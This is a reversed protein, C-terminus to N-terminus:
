ARVCNRGAHKAAYLREDARRIVEPLSDGEGVAVVGASLTLEDLGPYNVGEAIARRVRECFAAAGLLSAPLIAVFEEGGWRAVTDTKRALRVMVQAVQRLVQDGAVHGYEDNVRKFRDVDLLALCLSGGSRTLRAQEVEFAREAARRNAIGTLPDTVLQREREAHLEREATIDDWVVAYGNGGPVPVASIVRRLVRRRPRVLVIEQRLTEAGVPLPALVREVDLPDEVLRELHRRFCESSGHSRLEAPDIGFIAAFAANAVVVRREHDLLVVGVQINSLTADLLAFDRVVADHSRARDTIDHCFVLAAPREDMVSALPQVHLDYVRDRHRVEREFAAGALAGRLMTVLDIGGPASFVEAVKRGIVSQEDGLGAADLLRELDPGAASVIRLDADVKFVASHPLHRLISRSIQGQREIAGQLRRTETMDVIQAIFHRPEGDDGRVLSVHVEAHLTSGDKRLYRKAMRFRPIDDRLLAGILERHLQVDEPHTRSSVTEHALEGAEFGLMACLARNVQLFRFDLGVLAKGIPAHEFSERFQAEARRRSAEEVRQQRQVVHNHITVDIAVRLDGAAGPTIVFADPHRHRALTLAAAQERERDAGALLIVPADCRQRMLDTAWAGEAGGALDADLLVVDPCPGVRALAEAWSTAVGAVGCHLERLMDAIGSAAVGDDEVILVAPETDRM